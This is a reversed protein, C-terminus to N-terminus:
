KVKIVDVTPAPWLTVNINETKDAEIRVRKKVFPKFGNSQITLQYEGSPVRIQFAGEDSTRTEFLHEKNEVQIQAGAIRSEKPDVVLGKLDGQARPAPSHTQAVSTAQPLALTLLLCCGALLLLKMIM